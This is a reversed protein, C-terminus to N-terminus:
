SSRVVFGLIQALYCFHSAGQSCGIDKALYSPLDISIIPLDVIALKELFLARLVAQWYRLNDIKIIDMYDGANLSFKTLPTFRWESIFM